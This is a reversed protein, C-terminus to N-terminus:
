SMQKSKNKNQVANDHDPEQPQQQQQQQQQIAQAMRAEKQQNMIKEMEQQMVSLDIENKEFQSSIFSNVINQVEPPMPTGTKQYEALASYVFEQLLQYEKGEYAKETNEMKMQGKLQDRMSEVKGKTMISQNQMQQNLEMNRLSMQMQLQIHKDQAKALYLEAMKPDSINRVKFADSFSIIGASLSTKILEEVLNKDSEGPSMKMKLVFRADKNIEKGEYFSRYADTKYVIDDWLLIAIKEVVQKSINLFADYINTFSSNAIRLQEKVVGVGMRPALPQGSAAPNTGLVSELQMKNFNFIGMLSQIQEAVVNNGIEKIPMQMPREGDESRSKWIIDGTQNNYEILDNITMTRGNGMPISSMAYVDYAYGSPKMKAIIQQIRLLALIMQVCFPEIKEPIAVNVMNLHDYMYPCYTFFQESLNSNPRITYKSEGWELIINSNRILHGSYIKDLNKETVLTNEGTNEPKKHSLDVINQGNKNKKQKIFFTSDTKVEFSIIPITWEDYPRYYMTAYTDNWTLQQKKQGEGYKMVMEFIQKETYGKGVGLYQESFRKRFETIKMDYLEGMFACDRFDYYESFSYFFNQPNIRRIKVSGNVDTYVRLVGLGNKILDKLLLRKIEVWGNDDLIATVMKEVIAEEPLKYQNGFFLDLEEKNQPTFSNPNELPVGAMQQLQQIEAQHKMRFEAEKIDRQEQRKSKEDIADAVVSEDLDMFADMMQQIYKPMIAPPSFDLNVYSSKGNINLLDLFMSMPQKGEAWLNNSNFRQNRIGFYGNFGSRVYNDIYQGIKLGYEPNSKDESFHFQITPIATVFSM